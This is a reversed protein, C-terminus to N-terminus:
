KVEEGTLGGEVSEERAAAVGHELVGDEDERAARKGVVAELSLQHCTGGRAETTDYGPQGERGNEADIEDSFGVGRPPPQPVHWMSMSEARKSARQLTCAVCAAHENMKVSQTAAQGSSTLLCAEPVHIHSAIFQVAPGMVFVCVM